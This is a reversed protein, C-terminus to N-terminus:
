RIHSGSRQQCCGNLLFEAQLEFRRFARDFNHHYVVDLFRSRVLDLEGQAVIGTLIRRPIKAYFSYKMAVGSLHRYVTAHDLLVTRFDLRDISIRAGLERPIRPSTRDPLKGSRQGPLGSPTPVPSRAVAMWSWSPRFSSDALSGNEIRIMSTTSFGGRILLLPAFSENFSLGRELSM